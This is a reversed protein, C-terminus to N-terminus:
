LLIVLGLELLLRIQKILAQMTLVVAVAMAQITGVAQAAAQIAEEVAVAVTHDEEAALGARHM